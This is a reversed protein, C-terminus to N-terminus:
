LQIGRKMLALRARSEWDPNVGCRYAEKVLECLEPDAPSPLKGRWEPCDLGNLTVCRKANTCGLEQRRECTHCNM